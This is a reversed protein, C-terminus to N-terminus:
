AKERVRFSSKEGKERPAQEKFKPATQHEPALVVFRDARAETRRKGVLFGVLGALIVAALAGIISGALPGASIGGHANCAIISSVATAVSGEITTAFTTAVETFGTSVAAIGRLSAFSRSFRLTPTLHYLNALQFSSFFLLFVISERLPRLSSPISALSSSCPSPRRRCM